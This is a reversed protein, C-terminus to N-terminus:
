FSRSISLYPEQYRRASRGWVWKNYGVEVNWLRGPGIPVILALGVRGMSAENFNYDSRGGFRDDPERVSDNGRSRVWVLEGKLATGFWPLGYGGDLSVPFQDGPAGERWTYGVGLNAWAQGGLFSRSVYYALTYDYKLLGRWEDSLGAIEGDDNYVYRSYPGERDYFAPTRVSVGVAMPLTGESVQYKLGFWADSFGTNRELDEPPGEYGDLYTLLFQGSLNRLLGFDGSLYVYRFDHQSGHGIHTGFANWSSAAHKRSYGLQFTGDGPVPIWAGGALSLTPIAFLALAIPWRARKM